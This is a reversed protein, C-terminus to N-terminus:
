IAKDKGWAKKIFGAYQELKDNYVVTRISMIKAYFTSFIFIYQMERINSNYYIRVCM